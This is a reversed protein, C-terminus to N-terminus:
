DQSIVGVLRPLFLIGGEGHQVGGIPSSGIAVVKRRANKGGAHRLHAERGGRRFPSSRHCPSVLLESNYIM